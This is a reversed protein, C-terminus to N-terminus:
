YTIKQYTLILDAGQARCEKAIGYAISKENAIGMIVGRKGALIGSM